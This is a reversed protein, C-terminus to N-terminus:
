VQERTLQSVPPLVGYGDCTLLIVNTPHGGVAPLKANKIFELPYASRHRPPQAGVLSHAM